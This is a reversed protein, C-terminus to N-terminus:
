SAKIAVKKFGGDAKKPVTVKLVGSSLEAKSNSVDATSPLHYEVNLGFIGRKEQEETVQAEVKLKNAAAKVSIQSLEVGPLLFEISFDSDTEVFDRPGSARSYYSYFKPLYDSTHNGYNTNINNILDFLEVLKKNEM